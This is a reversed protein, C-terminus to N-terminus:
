SLSQVKRSRFFKKLGDLETEGFKDTLSNSVDRTSTLRELFLDFPSSKSVLGLQYSELALGINIVFKELDERTNKSTKHSGLPLHKKRKLSRRFAFEALLMAPAKNEKASSVLIKNLISYSALSSLGYAAMEISMLKEPAPFLAPQSTNLRTLSKPIKGFIKEYDAKYHESILKILKTISINMEDVHLLPELTQSALSDSRGDWFGTM